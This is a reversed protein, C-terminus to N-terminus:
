KELELAVQVGENLEKPRSAFITPKLEEILGNKFVNLAYNDNILKIIDSQITSCDQIERIQLENLEAILNLLKEHYAHVSM